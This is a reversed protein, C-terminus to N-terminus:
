PQPPACRRALLASQCATLQEVVEDAEGTLEILFESAEVSLEAGTEGYYRSLAAATGDGSESLRVGPAAGTKGPDRLRLNDARLSAIIANTKAEANKTREQFEASIQADRAAMDREHKKIIGSLRMIEASAQSTRDLEKEQWKVREDTVGNDYAWSYASNVAYYATGIVVVVPLVKTVLFGLPNVKAALLLGSLIAM